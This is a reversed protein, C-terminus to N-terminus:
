KWTSVPRRIEHLHPIIAELKNEPTWWHWLFLVHREIQHLYPMLADLKNETTTSNLM